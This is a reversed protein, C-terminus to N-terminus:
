RLRQVAAQAPALFRRYRGGSYAAWARFNTGSASIRYAARANCGAQYACGATVEPHSCGNIQWLGRDISGGPCGHSGSNRHTAGPNCGSEALGVAVALVLRDGRRFGAQDGVHACLDAGRALAAVEAAQAPSAVGLVTGILLLAACVLALTHSRASAPHSLTRM